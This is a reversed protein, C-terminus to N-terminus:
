KRSRRTKHSKKSKRSKWKKRSPKILNVNGRLNIEHMSMYPVYNGESLDDHSRAINSYRKTPNSIGAYKRILNAPGHGPYASQGTRNEYIKRLTRNKVKTLKKNIVNRFTAQKPDKLLMKDIISDALKIDREKLFKIFKSVHSPDISAISKLLGHHFSGKPMKELDKITYTRM